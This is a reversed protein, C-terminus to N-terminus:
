VIHARLVPEFTTTHEHQQQDDVDAQRADEVVQEVGGSVSRAFSRVVDDQSIQTNRGSM